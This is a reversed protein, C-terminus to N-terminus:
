PYLPIARPATGPPPFWVGADSGHNNGTVGQFAIVVGNLIGEITTAVTDAPDATSLDPLRDPFPGSVCFRTGSGRVGQQGPPIGRPRDPRGPTRGTPNVSALIAVDLTVTDHGPLSAKAGEVLDWDGSLPATLTFGSPSGPLEFGVGTIRPWDAVGPRAPSTNAVNFCVVKLGTNQQGWGISIPVDTGASPSSVFATAFDLWDLGKVVHASLGTFSSLFTATSAVIALRSARKKIMILERSAPHYAFTVPSVM